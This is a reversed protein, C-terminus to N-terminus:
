SISFIREVVVWRRAPYGIKVSEKEEGSHRIHPIYRRKISEGDIEPLDYGKDLCLNQKKLPREVLVIMRDLTGRTAAKMDHTSAIYYCCCIISHRKPRDTLVHHKTGIGILM